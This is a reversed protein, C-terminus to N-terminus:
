MASVQPAELAGGGGSGGRVGVGGLISFFTFTKDPAQQERNAQRQLYGTFAYLPPLLSLNIEVNERSQKVQLDAEYHPLERERERWEQLEGAKEGKRQGRKTDRSTVRRLRRRAGDGDREVDQVQIEGERKGEEMGEGVAQGASLIEM